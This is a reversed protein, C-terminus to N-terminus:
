IERFGHWAFVLRDNREVLRIARTKSYGLEMLLTVELLAQSCRTLALLRNGTAARAQLRPNWHTYYNRTDRILAPYHLPVHSRLTAPLDAMVQRIRDIFAVDRPRPRLRGHLAELSQATLLFRHDLTTTQLAGVYLSYIPTLLRARRFWRHVPRLDLDRADDLLFTMRRPNDQTVGSSVRHFLVWVPVRQPFTRGSGFEPDTLSTAEGRLELVACDSAVAFALLRNFQELNGLL